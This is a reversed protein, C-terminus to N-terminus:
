TAVKKDSVAEVIKPVAAAAAKVKNKTSDSKTLSVEKVAEVVKPVANIIKNTVSKVNPHQDMIKGIQDKTLAGVSATVNPIL